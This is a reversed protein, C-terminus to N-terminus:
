QLELIIYPEIVFEVCNHRTLRFATALIADARILQLKWMVPKFTNRSKIQIRANSVTCSLEITRQTVAIIIGWCSPSLLKGIFLLRKFQPADTLM